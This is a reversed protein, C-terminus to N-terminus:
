SGQLSTRSVNDAVHAEVVTLPLAGQGLIAEHFARVDFRGGLRQEAQEHLRRFTLFGMRYATAQGPMDTSYRLTDTAIQTESEMTTRRMYARADDLSWGMANLGTDTVLRQATFREHVLRGYRDLPDADYAGVEEPLGAAYEAWGENFAGLELAERRILPL